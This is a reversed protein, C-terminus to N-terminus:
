DVRDCLGILKTRDVQNHKVKSSKSQNCDYKEVEDHFILWISHKRVVLAMHDTVLRHDTQWVVIEESRGGFIVAILHSTMWWLSRLEFYEKKHVIVENYKENAMSVEQDYWM